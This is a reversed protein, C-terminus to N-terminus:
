VTILFGFEMLHTQSIFATSTCSPGTVRTTDSPAQLLTSEHVSFQKKKKNQQGHM